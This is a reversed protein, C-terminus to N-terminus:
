WLAKSSTLFPPCLGFDHTSADGGSEDLCGSDFNPHVHEIEGAAFAIGRERQRCV